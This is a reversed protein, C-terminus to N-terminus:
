RMIMIQKLTTSTVFSWLGEVSTNTLIQNVQPCTQCLMLNSLCVSEFVGFLLTTTIVRAALEWVLSLIARASTM